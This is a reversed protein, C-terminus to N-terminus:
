ELLLMILDINNGEECDRRSNDRRKSTIDKTRACCGDMFESGCCGGCGSGLVEAGGNSIADGSESAVVGPGVDMAGTDNDVM